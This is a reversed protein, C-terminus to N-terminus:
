IKKDIEEDPNAEYHQQKNEDEDLDIVVQPMYKLNLRQEKSLNGQLKMLLKIERLSTLLKDM